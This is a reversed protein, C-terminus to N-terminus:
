AVKPDAGTIAQPMVQRITRELRKVRSTARNEVDGRMAANNIRRGIRGNPLSMNPSVSPCCPRQDLPPRDEAFVMEAM